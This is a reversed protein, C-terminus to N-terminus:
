LSVLKSNPTSSPIWCGHSRPRVSMRSKWLSSYCSMRLSYGQTRIRNKKMKWSRRRISKEKKSYERRKGEEDEQPPIIAVSVVELLLSLDEEELLRLVQLLEERIDRVEEYDKVEV